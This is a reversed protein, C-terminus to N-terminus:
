SPCDPFPFFLSYFLDIAYTTVSEPQRSVHHLADVIHIAPSLPKSAALKRKPEAPSDKETLAM